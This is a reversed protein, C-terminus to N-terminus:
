HTKMVDDIFITALNSIVKNDSQKLTLIKPNVNLGEVTSKAHSHYLYILTTIAEAVTDSQSSDLLNSIVKLDSHKLIYEVNDPDPIFCNM